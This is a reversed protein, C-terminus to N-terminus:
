SALRRRVLPQEVAAVLVLPTFEVDVDELPMEGLCGDRVARQLLPQWRDRRAARHGTPVRSRLRNM